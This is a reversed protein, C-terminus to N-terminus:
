IITKANWCLPCTKSSFFLKINLQICYPCSLLVIRRVSSANNKCFKFCTNSFNKVVVIANTFTIFEQQIQLLYFYIFFLFFYFILNFIFFSIFFFYFNIIIIIIAIIFLSMIFYSYCVLEKCSLEELSIQIGEALWLIEQLKISGLGKISYWCFGV